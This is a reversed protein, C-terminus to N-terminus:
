MSNLSVLYAYVNAADEEGKLRFSMKSRAKTDGTFEALFAKPDQVYAVFNEETWVLGKEAGAMELSDAYRFGEVAGAAHGAVNFLNPGTKAAKGALKDGAENVVVHCTACRKAFVSEGAAADGTPAAMEAMASAEAAEHSEALAPSALLLTATLAHIAKM